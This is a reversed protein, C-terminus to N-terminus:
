VPHVLTLSFAQKKLPTQFARPLNVDTVIDDFRILPAVNFLSHAGYKSSDALLVKRQANAIIEQKLGSKDETPTTVGKELSWSNCSMFAIDPYVSRLM